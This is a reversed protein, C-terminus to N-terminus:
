KILEWDGPYLKVDEISCGLMEAGVGLMLKLAFMQAQHTQNPKETTIIKTGFGRRTGATAAIRGEVLFTVIWRADRKQELTSTLTYPCAYGM